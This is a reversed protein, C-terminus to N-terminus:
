ALALARVQGVEAGQVNLVKPEVWADLMPATDPMLGLKKLLAIVSAHLGRVNGDIVKVAIGLGASRIGITQVGEAGAKAIWDGPATRMLAADFRATGSMLEPHSTMASFIDGLAAGYLPDREGQALRAYATALQALPMAYNPASCGDIGWPMDTESMGAFHAVHARIATQLPHAPDLYTELPLDHQVCYALFGAHKGSCNNHLQTYTEGFPPTRGLAAYMSPVHCGCRLHHEDCGARQLISQALHTHMPEGSHSACLLAIERLGFGFRAPGDARLFPLAQFPKLASRTFTMFAPDGASFILDGATNVVAVSGYHVSEVHGGRTVEVLPVHRSSHAVFKALSDAPLNAM